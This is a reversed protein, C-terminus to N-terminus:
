WFIGRRLMDLSSGDAKETEMFHSHGLVDNRIIRVKEWSFVGEEDKSSSFVM